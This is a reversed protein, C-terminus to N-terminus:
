EYRITKNNPQLLTVMFFGRLQPTIRYYIPTLNNNKAMKQGIVEM